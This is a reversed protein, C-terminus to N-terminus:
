AASHRWLALGADNIRIPIILASSSARATLRIVACLRRAHSAGIVFWCPHLFPGHRWNAPIRGQEARLLSLLNFDCASPTRGSPGVAADSRRSCRLMGHSSQVGLPRRIGQCGIHRSQQCDRPTRGLHVNGVQSAPPALHSFIPLCCLILGNRVRQRRRQAVRIPQKLASQCPEASRSFGIARSCLALSPGAAM